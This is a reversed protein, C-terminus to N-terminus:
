TTKVSQVTDCLVEKRHRHYKELNQKRMCISCRRCMGKGNWYNKDYNHGNPCQTKKSNLAGQGVGRLTNIGKTVAELHSPNVCARNRCLHDITLKVPISGNHIEYSLRHARVSKGKFWFMGYGCQDFSGDWEWCYHYM